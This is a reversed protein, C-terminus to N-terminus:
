INFRWITDEHTEESNSPHLQFCDANADIGSTSAVEVAPRTGSLTLSIPPRLTPVSNCIAFKGILGKKDM